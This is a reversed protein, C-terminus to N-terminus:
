IAAHVDETLNPTHTLRHKDHKNQTNQHTQRQGAAPISTWADSQCKLPVTNKTTPKTQSSFIDKVSVCVCAQKIQISNCTCLMM